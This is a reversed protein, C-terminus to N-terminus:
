KLQLLMALAYILELADADLESLMETIEQETMIIVVTQMM